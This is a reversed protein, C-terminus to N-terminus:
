SWTTGSGKRLGGSGGLSVDLLIFILVHVIKKRVRKKTSESVLM